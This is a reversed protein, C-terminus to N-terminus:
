EVFLYHKGNMRNGYLADTHPSLAITGKLFGQLKCSAYNLLDANKFMM